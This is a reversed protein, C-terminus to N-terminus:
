ANLVVFSEQPVVQVVFTKTVVESGTKLTMQYTGASLGSVDFQLGLGKKLNMTSAYLSHGEADTIAIEGNVQVPQVFLQIKQNNTMVVRAQPTPTDITQAITKPAFSATGAVLGLMLLITKKM